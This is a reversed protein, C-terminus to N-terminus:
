QDGYVPLANLEINNVNKIKTWIVKKNKNLLKDDDIFLYILKNIKDEDRDKIKTTKDYVKM